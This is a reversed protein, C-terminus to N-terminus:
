MECRNKSLRNRVTGIMLDLSSPGLHHPLYANLFLQAVLFRLWPKRLIKYHM